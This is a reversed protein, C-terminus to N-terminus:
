LPIRGNVILPLQSMAPIPCVLFMTYWSKQKEDLSKKRQMATHFNRYRNKRQLNCLRHRMNVFNRFRRSDGQRVRVFGTYYSPLSLPQNGHVTMKLLTGMHFDCGGRDTRRAVPRATMLCRKRLIRAKTATDAVNRPYAGKEAGNNARNQEDQRKCGSNQRIM